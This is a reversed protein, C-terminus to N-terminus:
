GTLRNVVASTLMQRLEAPFGTGGVSNFGITAEIRDHRIMIADFTMPLTLGDRQVTITARLGTADRAVAPPLMSAVDFRTVAIDFSTGAPREANLMGGMVKEFCGPAADDLLTAFDARAWELSPAVSFESTVSLGESSFGAEAERPSDDYPAGLCEALARDAEDPGDEPDPPDATWGAPFDAPTLVARRALATLEATSLGESGTRTAAYAGGALLAVIAVGLAGAVGGRPGSRPSRKRSRPPAAGPRVAAAPPPPGAPSQAPPAPHYRLRHMQLSGLSPVNTGCDDCQIGTAM